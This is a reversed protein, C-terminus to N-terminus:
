LDKLISENINRRIRSQFESIIEEVGFNKNNLDSIFDNIYNINMYHKTCHWRLCIIIYGDKNQKSIPIANEGHILDIKRGDIKTKRNEYETWSIMHKEEVLCAHFCEKGNLTFPKDKEYKLIIFDNYSDYDYYVWVDTFDFLESNILYGLSEIFKFEIYSDGLENLYWLDNEWAGQETALESMLDNIESSDSSHAYGLSNDPFCSRIIDNFRHILNWMRSQYEHEHNSKHMSRIMERIERISQPRENPENSLCRDIILDLDKLDTFTKTINERQTGRHIKGTTYYQILQGLTFIDMTPHPQIGGREQEPASFLRNGIRTDKRTKAKLVFQDPNYHAIGFDALVYGYEAILINEPKLDRHIIDNEHIFEISDLLFNFYSNVDEITTAFKNKMSSQYKKMIIAPYFDGEIEIEEYNLLQVIYPNPLLKTINFYEAKFRIKQDDLMKGTNISVLFKIVVETGHVTANYVEGNGGGDLRAVNKALGLCLDIENSEKFYQTLKEKNM